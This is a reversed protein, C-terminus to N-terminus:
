LSISDSLFVPFSASFVHLSVLKAKDGQAPDATSKKQPHFLYWVPVFLHCTLSPLLHLPEDSAETMQSFYGGKVKERGSQTTQEEREMQLSRKAEEWM